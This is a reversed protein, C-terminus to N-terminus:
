HLPCTTYMPVTLLLLLVHCTTILTTSMHHVHSLWCYCCSMAHPSLHLPCSTYMPVTLLLLLVHCTTILTTSMLHVHTCDVIAVLCPMHHYTYYVHPTCPYLWCYCCSMAHPSLHLLCTTYMPVTLLLLLVHCTTILTTSMHHVHTCDVIAVLCPMHHYTYHVHPTCPYLWCYCCSMAHPSLHLPCSTYMSVTLLLLLVHCTTILTTSMHHVHTCDVIAVLCPMHHYTYHVHPTCPYLWCYCCSMAHPSLHLPCTTYMPVTLLLLLVHCTTILTTSMLHVHICDVIAVLCPMHHYTYHVHPTCPYLWCYCCSMAHPSLHLPCSTYMSVTLLLLLVHCTTILTTSMLHVHICDVIAVLCPMHHYTYHVHPTCPYLWCYCCSMAHPSLHLPCSTYMSVTLLLLLVHCTTILTTSMHHVHTCDVIAVLCPMHHYTYHVHPTCPYLWCYCCSMAHPSLHLPCSTYMSVTLLLLLVHCTTILTTSMLHVHICDVIAVLCPMHHYTYHVHPTCPYLWCYCCSMAHPSLHLPCSTYMSVTLLLLLVHCTTILTTSMLHVHTCDVIAVLCPMHHYTYHVHPTCLYLWCYCCSMAHPSLYLPCSTYMPVALLLLLVHCTTILITSMLHVHTCNVVAVLCPMHHYTYHVHPTCPYLWCYCCSMAHSSLQVHCTIIIPCPMRHYNSMAHPSLQVHCTIIIPCPMRHYNSMAHPSLQVHCTTIIPCPMHHYNSMAHPSLQVHCATIIPCPMRHYNSMAHPSLQVHCATIIPCPMRHYNSMAHPSLQVHCATIIPCPMHHYNSMAHPSLQVHCATIIPCPMRHYNSMAHPSLQVHCATIIPCPMRHYNSMAHPSLQVHCATIIPCPMHHYNSMAHPSLQVHCATIIPCPMRHYNSMAHPSLQVHCATIIPCPMRHYNSMAHPSLQVHCTTIIPCPMHHYNSMAHPSLQVHCATIIPCPMRHYNSMAHPSLQVHCATIIPCPMRHYNSMAHPSLQVHCATIIPCPMRHYNSMAHPSLQVHCATIIPCPMRHYNSMAHPSLQVHCATIIPCPMRHYNSMAHPSLQVHCATIIPCPMHHYKSMAHPSLQVHCATIIPCPMHHYTTYCCYVLLM